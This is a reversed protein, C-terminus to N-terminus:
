EEGGPEAPGIKEIPERKEIAAIRRRARDAYSSDPFRQILDRYYILAGRPAAKDEYYAAIEFAKKAQRDELDRLMEQAENQYASEPFDRLFAKLYRIARDSMGADYDAGAGRVYYCAGLQFVAPEVAQSAPYNDLIFKYELEAAEYNGDLQLARALNYQAQPAIRSFTATEVITRFITQATGLGSRIRFFLFLRRRGNLFAEGIQFQRRLIEELNGEGPYDDLLKQFAEFAHYLDGDKELNVALRWQAPPALPSHPYDDVIDEFADAADDWNEEEEMRLGEEWLEMVEEEYQTGPVPDTFYIDAAPLAGSLSFVSLGFFVTLSIPLYRM